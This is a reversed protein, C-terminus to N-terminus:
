GTFASSSCPAEFPTEEERSGEPITTVGEFAKWCEHELQHCRKCLLELNELVNNTPDHDRHHGVWQYHTADKLDVKCRECQGLSEKREKAWRRFTCRGHKYAFNEKGSGTLGGSGVGVKCGKKRNFNDRGRKQAEKKAVKACDPCFKAARGTPQYETNCKVCHKTICKIM